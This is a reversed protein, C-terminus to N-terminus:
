EKKINTTLSWVIAVVWGVFTWGALFNLVIIQILENHKRQSAWITPMWYLAFVAILIVLSVPSIM